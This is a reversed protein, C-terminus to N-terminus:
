PCSLGYLALLAGLDAQDTDGDGDIDGADSFGFAALLIGLDGQDVAGSGDLDEPCAAGATTVAVSVYDHYTEDAQREAYLLVTFKGDPTFYRSFNSRISGSLPIDRNGAANDMYFNQGVSGAGSAWQNGVQDWVYLETQTCQASYGEWYVDIDLIDAPNEAIDFEFVHTCESTSAVTPSVYRNPDTASGSADPNAIKAYAGVVLTDILTAAGTPIRKASVAAGWSTTQFGYGRKDVGAGTKFDYVKRTTPAIIFTGESVAVAVNDDDDRAVVKVKCNNSAVAPVTWVYMGDHSEGLSITYPYTAGGDLSYYLDVSHIGVDDSASWRVPIVEGASFHEGGKPSIVHAAPTSSVHAPVQKVICHIAGAAPIIGNSQIPILQLGPAAAAWAAMNAADAADYASLGGPVLQTGYVPVFIRNNVRFANTYTYHTSGVNWNDTRTVTFGLGAFYTAGAETVSVATPNATAPDFKGIIVSDDDIIYCWMDIHGTGDVSFPLQGLVHLTDVGQYKMMQEAILASTFGQSAPNDLTMLSTVFGHRNTTAQFNGGSYYLGIHYSPIKYYDEALLTPIFNDLPRTPYYHSDVIALTGENLIFHPGYDRIWLANLPNIIFKVKSMNAGAATFASTASSQQATSTTVVYAIENKTPDATLSAVLATVVSNWQGAVWSYLVGKMPAYEPPSYILMNPPADTASDFHIAYPEIVEEGPAPQPTGGERVRSVGNPADPGFDITQVQAQAPALLAGLILIALPFRILKRPVM